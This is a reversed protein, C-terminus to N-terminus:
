PAFTCVLFILIEDLLPVAKQEIAM